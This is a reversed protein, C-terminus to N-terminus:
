AVAEITFSVGPHGEVEVGGAGRRLEIGEAKTTEAIDHEGLRLDSLKEESDVNITLKAV